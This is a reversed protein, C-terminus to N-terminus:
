NNDALPDWTGRHGGETLAQARKDTFQKGCV